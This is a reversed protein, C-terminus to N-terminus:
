NRSRKCWAATRARKKRHREELPDVVLLSATMMVVEHEQHEMWKDREARALKEKNLFGMWVM